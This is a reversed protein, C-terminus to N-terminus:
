RCTSGPQSPRCVALRCTDMASIAPVTATKRPMGSTAPYRVRVMPSRALPRSQYSDRNRGLSPGTASYPSSNVM